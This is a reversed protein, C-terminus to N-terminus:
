LKIKLKNAIECQTVWRACIGFKADRFWEPCQYNTLSQWSPTFPGSAIAPLNLQTATAATNALLSAVAAILLLHKVIFKM